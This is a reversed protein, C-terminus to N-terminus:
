SLTTPASRLAEAYPMKKVQAFYVEASHAPNGIKFLDSSPPGVDDFVVYRAGKGGEAGSRLLGYRTVISDAKNIYHVYQPGDPYHAAAGANTEVHVLSLAAQVEEPSKGAREMHQKLDFLANSLIIAGQSRAVVHTVKGQQIRESLLQTIRETPPNTLGTLKRLWPVKDLGAQIFDGPIGNTANYLLTVGAGRADALQQTEHAAKWPPMDLGNIFVAPATGAPAKTGDTPLVPAINELPTDREYVTFERTGPRHGGFLKGDAWNYSNTLQVEDLRNAKFANPIFKDREAAYNGTVPAASAVSAAAKPESKASARPAAPDSSAGPSQAPRGSVGQRSM